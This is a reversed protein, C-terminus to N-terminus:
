QRSIGMRQRPIFRIMEGTSINEAAPFTREFRSRILRGQVAEDRVPISATM